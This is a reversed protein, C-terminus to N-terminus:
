SEYSSVDIQFGKFGRQCGWDKKLDHRKTADHIELMLDGIQKEVAVTNLAHYDYAACFAAYAHGLEEVTVSESNEAPVVCTRVFERLSDSEALLTEVREQQKKTLVFDGNSQLEASHARAGQVMWLLIGEAEQKLLVDAFNAIRHTPKPKNYEIVMLRRRWADADGELRVRLRSNCTILANFDGRMEFCGNSNKGEPTLLDGGVLKKLTSAGKRMLFEAPVDKGTLLTKGIYRFLEFREGLFDTRLETVNELGIIKELIEVLTSKGGGATGTLLLIRQATNRGLLLSGCYRQLLWIDEPDLASALLEQKFRPCDAGEVIKIPCRNRSYYMPSFERLQPPTEDIHLMGNAVHIVNMFRRFVGRQETQGRLLNVFGALRADTRLREIQSEGQLDAYAKLDGGFQLKTSDATKKMWLGRLEEYSYFQREGAEHLIAHELAFKAVFFLDNLKVIGKSSVSFPEGQQQVLEQYLAFEWPLELDDPWVISEFTVELPKAEYVIKYDCGSPHRGHIVTQGGTARWEGWKQPNGDEDLIGEQTLPTLAPYEGIIRVWVNGGRAGRTRLTDKLKPNLNLFREMETDEDIDISCLGNSPEGLLVGINGRRLKRLYERNAMDEVTVNQWGKFRPGKEGRPIPLLVVDHGLLTRLNNVVDDSTQNQKM